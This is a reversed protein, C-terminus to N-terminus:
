RDRLYVMTFAADRVPAAEVALSTIQDALTGIAHSLNM